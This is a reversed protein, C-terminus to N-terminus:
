GQSSISFPPYNIWFIEVNHIEEFARLFQPNTIGKDKLQSQIELKQM